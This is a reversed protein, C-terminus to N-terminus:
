LSKEYSYLGWLISVKKTEKVNKVVNMNELRKRNQEAQKKQQEEKRRQEEKQEKQWRLENKIWEKATLYLSKYKKLNPYNEIKDLISDVMEKGHENILKKADKQSIALHEFARYPTTDVSLLAPAENNEKVKQTKMNKSKRKRQSREEKRIIELLKRVTGINPKTTDWKYEYWPGREKSKRRIYLGHERAMRATGGDVKNRFAVDKISLYTWDKETEGYLDNLFNLTNAERKTLKTM